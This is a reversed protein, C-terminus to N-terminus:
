DTSIIYTLSGGAMFYPLKNGLNRVLTSMLHANSSSVTIGIMTASGVSINEFDLTYHAKSFTFGGPLLNVLTPPTVGPAGDPPWKETESHYNYAAVMVTRFDGAVEASRAQDRLDIYKLLAIGALVGMVISVVLLEVVTFGKRTRLTKM